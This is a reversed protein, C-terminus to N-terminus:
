MQFLEKFSVRERLGDVKIDQASILEPIGWIKVSFKGALRYVEADEPNGEEDLSWFLDLPSSASLVTFTEDPWFAIYNKM